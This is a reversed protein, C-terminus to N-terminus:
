PMMRLTTAIPPQRQALQSSACRPELTITVALRIQRVIAVIPMTEVPGPKVSNPSSGSDISSVPPRNPM